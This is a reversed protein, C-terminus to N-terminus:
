DLSCINVSIKKKPLDSTISVCFQSPIDILNKSYFDNWYDQEAKKDKFKM